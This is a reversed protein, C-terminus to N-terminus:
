TVTAIGDSERETTKTVEWTVKPVKTPIRGYVKREFDEWRDLEMYEHTYRAYCYQCGFECGRYPNISWEFPVRHSDCRCTDGDTSDTRDNTRGNGRHPGHHKDAGRDTRCVGWGDDFSHGIAREHPLAM